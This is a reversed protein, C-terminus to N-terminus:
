PSMVDFEAMVREAAERGAQQISSEIAARNDIPPLPIGVPVGGVGVSRRYARLYVRGGTKV